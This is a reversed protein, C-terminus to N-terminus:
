RGWALYFIIWEALASKGDAEALEAVEQWSQDLDTSIYPKAAEHVYSDGDPTLPNELFLGCHDCHQPCDAEGGGESYPGQPYHDSDECGEYERKEIMVIAACHECLLAAQFVFAKM